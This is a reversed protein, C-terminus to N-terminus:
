EEIKPKAWQERLVAVASRTWNYVTTDTIHLLEAIAQPSMRRYFRLWLVAAERDSLEATLELFRLDCNRDDRGPLLELKERVFNRMAVDTAERRRYDILRSRICTFAWRHFDGKGDYAPIIFDILAALMEGVADETDHLRMKSALRGAMERVSPFYHEVLRNRLQRDDRNAIYASWLENIQQAALDKATGARRRRIRRKNRSVHQSSTKM